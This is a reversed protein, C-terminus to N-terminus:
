RIRRQSKPKQLRIKYKPFADRVAVAAERCFPVSACPDGGITGVEGDVIYAMRFPNEQQDVIAAKVEPTHLESKSGM